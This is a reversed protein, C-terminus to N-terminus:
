ARCTRASMVHRHLVESPNWGTRAQSGTSVATLSGEPRTGKPRAIWKCDVVLRRQDRLVATTDDHSGVFAEDVVAARSSWWCKPWHSLRRVVDTAVGHPLTRHQHPDAVTGVWM